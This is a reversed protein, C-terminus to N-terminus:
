LFVQPLPLWSSALLIRTPQDSSLLRAKSTSSNALAHLLHVSLIYIFTYSLTHPLMGSFPPLKCFWSVLPFIDWYTFPPPSPIQKRPVFSPCLCASFLIYITMMVTNIPYQAHTLVLETKVVVRFSETIVIKEMECSLCYFGRCVFLQGPPTEAPFCRLCIGPWSAGSGVATVEDKCRREWCAQVDSCNAASGLCTLCGNCMNLCLFSQGTIGKRRLDWGPRRSPVSSTPLGTRLSPSPGASFQRLPRPWAWRTSWPWLPSPLAYLFCRRGDSGM